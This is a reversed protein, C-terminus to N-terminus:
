RQGSQILGRSVQQLLSPPLSPPLSSPHSTLRLLRCYINIMNADHSSSCSCPLSPPPPSRPLPSVLVVVLLGAERGEEEQRQGLTLKCNLVNKMFLLSTSAAIETCPGGPASERLCPRRSFRFPRPVSPSSTHNEGGRSQHRGQRGGVRGAEGGGGRCLFLLRDACM